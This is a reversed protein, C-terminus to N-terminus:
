TRNEQERAVEGKNSTVEWSHNIRADM